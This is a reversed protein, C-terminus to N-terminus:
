AKPDYSGIIRTEMYDQIHDVCLPMGKSSIHTAPALCPGLPEYVPYGGGDHTEYIIFLCAPDPVAPDPEKNSM